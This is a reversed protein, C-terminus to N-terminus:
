VRVTAPRRARLLAVVCASGASLGAVLGVWPGLWPRTFAPPHLIALASALAVVGGLVALAVDFVRREADRLLQRAVWVIAGTLASVTALLSWTPSRGWGGFVGSGVGFRSWPLATAFLALGFSAGQILNTWTLLPGTRAPPPAQQGLPEPLCEVGLIRGRVPVACPLCLQRGCGDCRAVASRTPHLDCREGGRTSREDAPM